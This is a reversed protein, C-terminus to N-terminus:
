KKFLIRRSGIVDTLIKGVGIGTRYGTQGDNVSTEKNNIPHTDM